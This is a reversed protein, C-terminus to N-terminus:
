ITIASKYANAMKLLKTLAEELKVANDFDVIFPKPHSSLFTITLKERNVQILSINELNIFCVLEDDNNIIFM